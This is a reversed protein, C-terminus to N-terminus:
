QLNVFFCNVISYVYQDIGLCLLNNLFRFFLVSLITISLRRHMFEAELCQKFFSCHVPLDIYFYNMIMVSSM